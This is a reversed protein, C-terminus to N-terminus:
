QYLDESTYFAKSTFSTGCGCKAGAMPNEFSFGQGMIDEKWDIQTGLIHMLSSGCVHIEINDHHFVEDLKEPKDNTPELKYNFGNCGGGKVYFRLANANNKKLIDSLKLSAAKTITIIKKSAM